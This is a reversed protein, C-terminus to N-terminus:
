RAGKEVYEVGDIVVSRLISKGSRVETTTTSMPCRVVTMANGSANTVYYVRCDKLGDPMAPYAIEKASDSCGALAVALVLVIRM